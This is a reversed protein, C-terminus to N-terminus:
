INFPLIQQFKYEDREFGYEDNTLDFPVIGDDEVGAYIHVAQSKRRGVLIVYTPSFGNVHLAALSAITFCDCDGGGPIGLRSGTMLTEVHQLLEVGAPDDVYTTRKKLWYFLEEPNSFKPINKEVYPLSDIVQDKLLLLTRSLNVYPEEHIM